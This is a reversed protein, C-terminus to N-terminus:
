DERRMTLCFSSTLLYSAVRNGLLLRGASGLTNFTNWRIRPKTFGKRSLLEAWFAPAQHKEWEISRSIPNKLGLDGFLNRRAVDVVILTGQPKTLAALKEFIELYERQAAADHHLVVCAEEDLHNISAHLLVVDFPDGEHEYEQLTQRVLKVNPDDLLSALRQLAQGTRGGSSGAADPEMAVSERAGACAAYFSFRGNGAGVDLMRKGALDVGDFLYNLYFRLNRPKYGLQEVASFYRGLDPQREEVGSSSPVSPPM